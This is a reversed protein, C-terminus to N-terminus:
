PNAKHFDATFREMVGDLAKSVATPAFVEGTFIISHAWVTALTLRYQQVPSEPLDKGVLIVGPRRLEISLNGYYGLRSQFDAINLTVYLLAIAHPDLKVGPLRQQVIKTVQAEVSEKSVGLAKAAGSLEAVLIRLSRIGKLVDEESQVPTADFQPTAVGTAGSAFLLCALTSAALRRPGASQVM